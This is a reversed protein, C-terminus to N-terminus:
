FIRPGLPPFTHAFRSLWGVSAAGAAATAAAAAAVISRRRVKRRAMTRFMLIAQLPLEEELEDLKRQEQATLPSPLKKSSASTGAAAVKEFLSVYGRRAM